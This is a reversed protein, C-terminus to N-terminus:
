RSRSRSALDRQSASTDRRLQDVVWVVVATLSAGAVAGTLYRGGVRSM